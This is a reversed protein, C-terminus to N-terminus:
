LVLVKAIHFFIMLSTADVVTTILPGAMIAPDFNLKKAAMPLLSGITKSVIVTAFLSVSVTLNVMLATHFLALRAFNVVALLAGAVVGVRIEKWVVKLVDKMQIEGVAMGRIILTSSQSGANGGTDMLIPFFSSLIVSSALVSEYGTIIASSATGSIMLVMLWMLRHKALDWVSSKLYEEESPILASMKEMDETNEEEMVDVMDDITIMGVLRNENDVVPVAILDYKKFVAAVEEQDDLTSVSVVDDEMIDSLVDTDQSLLLSRLSIVGVLIRGDKVVYCQYITEKDAAVQRLYALAEGVTEAERLSVFETTMLSGASDEPYNLLRNLEQRKEPAVGSLLHTVLKAPMESLFDVTDDPAMEELLFRSEGETLAEVIHQQMDSDMYSFTDAALDKSLLRFVALWDEKPLEELFAALDAPNQENLEQKLELLKGNTLWTSLRRQKKRAFFGAFRVLRRGTSFTM